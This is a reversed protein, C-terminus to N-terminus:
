NLNVFMTEIAQTINNSMHKSINYQPCVFFVCSTQYVYNQSFNIYFNSHPKWLSSSSSSSLLLLLTMTSLFIQDQFSYYKHVYICIHILLLTCGRVPVSARYLGYPGYPTYLYLEVTCATLSQVPWIAWLPLLPIAISYLCQPETCVMRGM